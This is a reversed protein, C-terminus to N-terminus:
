ETNEKEIEIIAHVWGAKQYVDFKHKGPFLQELRKRVNQLGTGTSNKEHNKNEKIESMHGTNSVEIGLKGNEITANIEIKLPIPSTLMGHKIANEVLPHILFGPIKFNEASKDINFNVEVEDEFRIKEINLYNRIAKVEDELLVESVDVNVLTYRLFESIESIM